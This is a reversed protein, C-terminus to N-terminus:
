ENFQVMMMKRNQNLPEIKNKNKNLKKNQKTLRSCKNFLWYVILLTVFMIMCTIKNVSQLVSEAFLFCIDKAIVYFYNLMYEWWYSFCFCFTWVAAAVFVVSLIFLILIFIFSTCHIHLNVNYCIASSLFRFNKAM